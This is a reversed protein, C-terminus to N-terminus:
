GPAFASVTKLAIILSGLDTHLENGASNWALNAQPSLVIGMGRKGRGSQAPPGKLIFKNNRLSLEEYGERWTEQLATAFTKHKLMSLCIEELKIDRKLGCVNESAFRLNSPANATSM